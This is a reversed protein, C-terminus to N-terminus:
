NSIHKRLATREAITQSLGLMQCAVDIGCDGAMVTGLVAVVRISYYGQLCPGGGDCVGEMPVAAVSHTCMSLPHTESSVPMMAAVAAVEDTPM